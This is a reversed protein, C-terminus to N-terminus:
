LDSFMGRLNISHVMGVTGQLYDSDSQNTACFYIEM